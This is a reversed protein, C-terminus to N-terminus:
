SSSPRHPSPSPGASSAEPAVRSPPRIGTLGLPPRSDFPCGIPAVPHARLPGSCAVVSGANGTKAERPHLDPAPIPEGPSNREPDGSASRTLTAEGAAAARLRRLEPLRLDIALDGPDPRPEVIRKAMQRM